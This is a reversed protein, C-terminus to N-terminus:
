RYHHLNHEVCYTILQIKNKSKFKATLRKIYTEVTRVSLNIQEGIEKNTSGQCILHIIHLEISNPIFTNQQQRNLYEHVDQKNQKWKELYIPYFDSDQTILSTLLQFIINSDKKCYYVHEFTQFVAYIDEQFVHISLFTFSPCKLKICEVNVKSIPIM